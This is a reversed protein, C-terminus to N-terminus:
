ILIKLSSLMYNKDSDIFQQYNDGENKIQDVLMDFLRFLFKKKDENMDKLIVQM